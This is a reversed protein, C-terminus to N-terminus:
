LINALLKAWRKIVVRNGDNKFFYTGVLLLLGLAVALILIIIGRRKETKM